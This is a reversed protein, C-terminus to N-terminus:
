GVSESLGYFSEFSSGREDLEYQTWVARIAQGAIVDNFYQLALVFDVVFHTGLKSAEIPM